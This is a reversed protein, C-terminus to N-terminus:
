TSRFTNDSFGGSWVLVCPRLAAPSALACTPPRSLPSEPGSLVFVSLTMSPSGDMVLNVSPPPQPPPWVSPPLLGYNLPKIDDTIGRLALSSITSGIGIGDDPRVRGSGRTEASTVTCDFGTRQGVVYAAAHGLAASFAPNLRRCVLAVSWTTAVNM